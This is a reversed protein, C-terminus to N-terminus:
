NLATNIHKYIDMYHIITRNDLLHKYIIEASLKQGKENLHGTGNYLVQAAPEYHPRNDIYDKLRRRLFISDINKKRLIGSLKRDPHDADLYPQAEPDKVVFSKWRDHYLQHSNPIVVFLFYGTEQLVEKHFTHIIKENLKWAYNLKESDKNMFILKGERVKYFTDSKKLKDALINTTHKQWVYFRSHRNLWTSIKKQVTFYPKIYLDGNQDMDMYIRPYTSLRDYNDSFDNGIYYACIVIDPNYKTVLRRFLVLEQATSAATIGFNFVEWTIDPHQQNLKQELQYVLTEETTTAIAAIQSDGLIAIRCTNQPKKYPRNSERFGDKNFKLRVYQQSENIFIKKSYNPIYKEGIESDKIKLPPQINSFIRVILEALTVFIFLSIFVLLVRFIIKKLIKVLM